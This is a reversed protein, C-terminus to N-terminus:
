RNIDDYISDILYNSTTLRDINTKQKYWLNPEMLFIRNNITSVDISPKNEKLRM